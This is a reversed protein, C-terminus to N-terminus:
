SLSSPVDDQSYSMIYSFLDKDNMKFPNASEDKEQYYLGSAKIAAYAIKNVRPQREKEYERLAEPNLGHLRLAHALSVSDEFALPTGMAMNPPIMHAADGILTVRGVGWPRNVPRFYIPHELISASDYHEKAFDLVKSPFGEFSKLFRELRDQNSQTGGTEGGDEVGIYRKRDLVHLEDKPWGCQGSVYLRMDGETGMKQIALVKGDGTWVNSEGLEIQDYSGRLFMRWICSGAYEPFVEDEFLISRVQSLNGDAGIVIKAFCEYGCRFKLHVCDDKEELSELEKGLYLFDDGKEEGSALCTNQSLFSKLVKQLQFWAIVVQKSDPDVANETVVSDNMDLMRFTKRQQGGKIVNTELTGSPDLARLANFAPSTLGVQGGVERLESSREFVALSIDGMARRIGISAALGAPGSGIVAVDFKPVSAGNVFNVPGLILAVFNLYPLLHFLYSQKM